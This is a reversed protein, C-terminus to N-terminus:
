ICDLDKKRCIATKGAFGRHAQSFNKLGGHRKYHKGRNYAHSSQTSGVAVGGIFQWTTPLGWM